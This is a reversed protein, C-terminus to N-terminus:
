VSRYRNQLRPRTPLTLIFRAGAHPANEARLEGGLLHANEKSLALGIGSGPGRSRSPDAKYFREFIHPLHQLPIGSGQDTVSLLFTGNDQEQSAEEKGSGGPGQWAEVTVPPKGHFLANEILNVVIRELMTRDTELERKSASPPPLRVTDGWGHSDRLRRLLDDLDVTEVLAEAAEADIRSIELLEGVLNDLRKVDKVVLEAARRFTPDLPGPGGAAPEGATPKETVPEGAASEGAADEDARELERQLLSAEGVLAAIPTRLEHAADSVFRQERRRAAELDQIKNQLNAAMRNFSAALAGFEGSEEPLRTDLDGGAIRGAAEGAVALPRLATRAMLYGLAVGLLSLLSGVGALINRLRALGEEREAQPYLFYVHPGSPSLRGGVALYPENEVTVGQYALRGRSVAEALDASVLSPAIQPGSVYSDGEDIIITEFDGRIRLAQLADRYDAENPVSPLLSDTLFLNFRSQELAGNLATQESNARALLYAGLSLILATAVVAATFTLTLRRRLRLNFHPFPKKGRNEEGGEPNRYPRPSM